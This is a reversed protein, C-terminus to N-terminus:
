NIKQIANPLAIYQYGKETKVVHCAGAQRLVEVKDGRVSYGERGKIVTAYVTKM